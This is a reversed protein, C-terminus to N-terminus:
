VEFFGQHFIRCKPKKTIELEHNKYLNKEASLVPM